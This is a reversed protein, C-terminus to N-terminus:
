VVKNHTLTALAKIVHISINKQINPKHAEWPKEIYKACTPAKHRWTMEEHQRKAYVKQYYLEGNCIDNALDITAKYNGSDRLPGERVPVLIQTQRYIYALEKMMAVQALAPAEKAWTSFTRNIEETGSVVIM